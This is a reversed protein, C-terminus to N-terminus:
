CIVCSYYASNCREDYLFQPILLVSFPIIYFLDMSKNSDVWEKLFHAKINTSHSKFSLEYFKVKKNM